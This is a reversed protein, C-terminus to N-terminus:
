GTHESSIFFHAVVVAAAEQVAIRAVVPLVVLEEVLRAVHGVRVSVDDVAPVTLAVVVHAVHVAVDVDVVTVLPASRPSSAAMM